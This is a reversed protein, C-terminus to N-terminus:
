IYYYLLAGLGMIALVIAIVWWYDETEKVILKDFEQATARHRLISPKDSSYVDMLGSNAAQTKTIWLDPLVQKSESEGDISYGYYADKLLRGIGPLLVSGKSAAQKQLDHTFEQFKRAAESENIELEKALYNYLSYTDTAIESSELRISQTPPNLKKNEYDMTSPIQEIGFTGIGPMSARGNLILYKYFLEYLM